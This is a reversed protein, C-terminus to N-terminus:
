KKLKNNVIKILYLLDDLLIFTYIEQISNDNMRLYLVNKLSYFSIFDIARDKGLDSGSEVSKIEHYFYTRRKVFFNFIYRRQLEIRDEFLFITDYKQYIAICLSILFLILMGSLNDSIHILSFLAITLFFLRFIWTWFFEWFSFAKYIYKEM